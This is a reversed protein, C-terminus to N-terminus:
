PVRAAQMAQVEACKQPPNVLRHALIAPSQAERQPQPLFSALVIATLATNPPVDHRRLLSRGRTRRGVAPQLQDDADDAHHHDGVQLVAPCQEHSRDSLLEAPVTGGDLDSEADEHEGLCPQHRDFAPEDVAVAGLDDHHDAAHQDADRPHQVGIDTRQGHEVDGGRDAANAGAGDVAGADAIGQFPKGVLRAAPRVAAPKPAPEASVM